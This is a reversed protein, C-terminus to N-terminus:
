APYDALFRGAYQHADKVDDPKVQAGKGHAADNRVDGIAQIRRWAAQDYAKERLLDNYKALSGTGKWSLGRATCLKALHDELVGGILVMAAVHYKGDLLEKAQVLFDDYVNVRVRRELRILLGDNVARRLATLTGTLISPYSDDYGAVGIRGAPKQPLQQYFESDRGAIREVAAIASAAFAQIDVEQMTSEMAGMDVMKFSAIVRKGEDILGDLENLLDDRLAM